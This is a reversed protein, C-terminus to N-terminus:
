HYNELYKYGSGTNLLLIRENRSIKGQDAFVKLAAWTAAGEPSILIGENRCVEEVASLIKNDSVSIAYGKSEHIIKLILDEGFAKPVSLGNAVSMGYDSKKQDKGNFLDVIPNCESSQVALMRPLSSEIWGLELMEKFAKWIGILGTGGGTPYIIIDPLVWNMQEAIEYGITKKGELRYPEKMTAMNFIGTNLQIEDAVKGCEDILGDVLILKAGYKECEQKFILPTDVPMVVTAKMNAAACYASLAGGANGATPIVCEEIGLELAKSVAMSIGRSKFSGTPNLGEDKMWINEFGYQDPLNRLKLIPTMGEGLTVKYSLDFLPLMELYRWMSNERFVLKEKPAIGEYTYNVILPKKCCTSYNQVRKISFQKGCYSCALDSAHSMVNIPAKM